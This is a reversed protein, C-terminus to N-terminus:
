PQVPSQPGTSGRSDAHELTAEAGFSMQTTPGGGSAGGADMNRLEEELKDFQAKTDVYNKRANEAGAKARQWDEFARSYPYRQCYLGMPYADNGWWDLSNRDPWWWGSGNWHRGSFYKCFRQSILENLQLTEGLFRTRDTVLLPSSDRASAGYPERAYWPLSRTGQCTSDEEVWNDKWTDETPPTAKPDGPVLIPRNVLEKCAYTYNDKFTSRVWEYKVPNGDADETTEIAWQFWDYDHEGSYPQAPSPYAVWPSPLADYAAKAAARSDAIGAKRRKLEALRGEMNPKCTARENRDTEYHGSSTERWVYDKPTGNRDTCASDSYRGGDRGVFTCETM